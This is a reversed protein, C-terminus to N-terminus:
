PHSIGFVYIYILYYLHPTSSFFPLIGMVQKLTLAELLHAPRETIFDHSQIILFARNSQTNPGREVDDWGSDESVSVWMCM